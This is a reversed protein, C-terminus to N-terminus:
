YIWDDPIVLLMFDSDYSKIVLEWQLPWQIVYDTLTSWCHFTLSPGLWLAFKFKDLILSDAPSWSFHRFRGSGFKFEFETVHRTTLLFLDCIADRQKAEPELVDIYIIAWMHSIPRNTTILKRSSVVVTKHGNEQVVWYAPTLFLWLSVTVTLM